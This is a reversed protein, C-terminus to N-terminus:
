IQAANEKNLLFGNTINLQRLLAECSNLDLTQPTAGRPGYCFCLDNQDRNKGPLHKLRHLQGFNVPKKKRKKKETLVLSPDQGGSDNLSWKVM